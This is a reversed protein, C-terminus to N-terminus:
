PSGSRPCSWCSHAWRGHRDRLCGPAQDLTARDDGFPQQVPDFHREPGIIRAHAAGGVAQGALHRQLHRYPVHVARHNSLQTLIDRSLRLLLPASACSTEQVGSM